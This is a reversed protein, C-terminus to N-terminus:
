SASCKKARIVKLREAHVRDWLSQLRAAKKPDSSALGALVETGQADSAELDERNLQGYLQSM